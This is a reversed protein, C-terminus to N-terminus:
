DPLVPSVGTAGPSLLTKRQFHPPFSSKLSKKFPSYFFIALMSANLASKKNYQHYQMRITFKENRRMM